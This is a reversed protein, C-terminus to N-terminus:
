VTYQSCYGMLNSSRESSNSFSQPIFRIKIITDNKYTSVYVANFLSLKIIHKWCSMVCPKCNVNMLKHFIDNFMNNMLMATIDFNTCEFECGFSIKCNSSSPNYNHKITKIALESSIKIHFVIIYTCYYLWNGNIATELFHEFKRSLNWFQCFALKGYNSNDIASQM